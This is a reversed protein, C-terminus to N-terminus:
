TYSCHITTADNVAYSASALVSYVDGRYPVVFTAGNQASTIRSDSYNFATALTLHRLATFTTGLSYSHSDYNGAFVEGGPTIPAINPILIPDTTTKYDTATLRYNFSIKLWSRARWTLRAEVEDTTLDRARIFAPYGFGERNAFEISEDRVHNYDSRSQRHKYHTDLSVTQWPSVRFGVRYEDTDNSADTDRLFEHFSGIQQEFQDITEQRFRGDAYLVTYPIKRYRVGVNEALRSKDM